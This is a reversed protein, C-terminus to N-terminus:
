NSKSPFFPPVCMYILCSDSSDQAFFILFALLMAVMFYSENCLYTAAYEYKPTM